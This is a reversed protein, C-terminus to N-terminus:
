FGIPTEVVGGGLVVKFSQLVSNGTELVVFSTTASITSINSKKEVAM